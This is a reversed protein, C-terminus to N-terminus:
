REPPDKRKKGAAWRGIVLGAIGMLLLGLNGPEAIEIWSRIGDARTMGDLTVDDLTVNALSNARAQVISLAMGGAVAISRMTFGHTRGPKMGLCKM